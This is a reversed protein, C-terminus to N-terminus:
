PKQPQTQTNRGNQRAYDLQLGTLRDDIKDLHKNNDEFAMQFLNKTVYKSDSEITIAQHLNELRLNLVYLGIAMMITVVLNAWERVEKYKEGPIM